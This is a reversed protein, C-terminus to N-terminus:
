LPLSTGWPLSGAQRDSPPANSFERGRLGASPQSFCGSTRLLQPAVVPSLECRQQRHATFDQGLRKVEACSLSLKWMQRTPISFGIVRHPRQLVLHSEECVSCLAQHRSGDSIRGQGEEYVCTVTRLIADAGGTESSFWVESSSPPKIGFCVPFAGRAHTSRCCICPFPDSFPPPLAPGLGDVM